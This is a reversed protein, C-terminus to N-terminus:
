VDVRKGFFGRYDPEVLTEMERFLESELFATNIRKASDSDKWVIKDAWDRDNEYVEYSVFGDQALFWEKMQKTLEIFRERSAGAKLKSIVIQVVRADSMVHLVSICLSDTSFGGVM